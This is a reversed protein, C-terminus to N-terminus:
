HFGCKRYTMRALHGISYWLSRFLTIAVERFLLRKGTFPVKLYNLAQNSTLSRLFLARFIEYYFQALRFNLFRDRSANGFNEQLYSNFLLYNQRYDNYTRSFGGISLSITESERNAHNCFCYYGNPAYLISDNCQDANLMELINILDLGLGKAYEPGLHLFEEGFSFCELLTSTDLICFYSILFKKYFNAVVYRKDFRSARYRYRAVLSLSPSSGNYIAMPGSVIKITDNVELLRLREYVFDPTLFDDSGLLLVYKFRAARLCSYFNQLAGTNEHNRLLVINKHRNTYEQAIEYTGDTSFNDSVIIEDAQRTQNLASDLARPFLAVRNFVPICITLGFPLKSKM